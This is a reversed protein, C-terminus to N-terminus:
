LATRKRMGAVDDDINLLKTDNQVRTLIDHRAGSYPATKIRVEFAFSVRLKPLHFSADDTSATM